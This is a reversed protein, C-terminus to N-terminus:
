ELGFTPIQTIPKPSGQQWDWYLQQIGNTLGLFAAGISLNYTHAQRFTDEDLMIHPAKCEMLLWPNGLRDFILLDSRKQMTNYKLGRELSILGKPIGLGLLYHVLHQRVWEEPTLAVAKRRIVDRILM